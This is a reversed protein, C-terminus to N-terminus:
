INQRLLELRMLHSVSRLYLVSFVSLFPPWVVSRLPINENAGRRLNQKPPALAHDKGKEESLVTRMGVTTGHIFPLPKRLM